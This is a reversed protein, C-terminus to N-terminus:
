VAKFGHTLAGATVGDRRGFHRDLVLCLEDLHMAMMPTSPGTKDYFIVVSDDIRGSSTPCGRELVSVRKVMDYPLLKRPLPPNFHDKTPVSLGMCKAFYRISSPSRKLRKACVSAGLLWYNRKLFLEDDISLGKFRKLGLKGIQSMIGSAGRGLREVMDSVSVGESHMVRLQDKEEETWRAVKLSVPSEEKANGVRGLLDSFSCSSQEFGVVSVNDM